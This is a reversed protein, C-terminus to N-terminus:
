LLLAVNGRLVRDNFWLMEVFHPLNYSKFGDELQIVAIRSYNSKLIGPISSFLDYLKGSRDTM